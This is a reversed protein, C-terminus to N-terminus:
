YLLMNKRESVREKNVQNYKISISIECKKCNNRKTYFDEEEKIEGCKRCEKM